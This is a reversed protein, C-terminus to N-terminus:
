NKSSIIRELQCLVLEGYYSNAHTADRGYFERKLFGNENVSVPPPPILEISFRNCIEAVASYEAEWIKLRIPAPNVSCNGVISDSYKRLKKNLYDDDEKPPPSMLHVIRAKTSNILQFIKKDKSSHLIFIDRMVNFPIFEGFGFVDHFYNSHAMLIPNDHVILGLINHYNGLISIALIDSNDLESVKRIADDFSLEGKSKEGKKKVFRKIYFSDNIDDGRAILSDRLADTHSHGFVLIKNM